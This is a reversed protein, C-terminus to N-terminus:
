NEQDTYPLIESVQQFAKSLATLYFESVNTLAIKKLNGERIEIAYDYLCACDPCEFRAPSNELGDNTNYIYLKEEDVSPEWNCAKTYRKGDPDYQSVDPFNALALVGNWSLHKYDTQGSKFRM